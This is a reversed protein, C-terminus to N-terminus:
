SVASFEVPLAYDLDTRLLALGQNNVSSCMVGIKQEKLMIDEALLPLNEGNM